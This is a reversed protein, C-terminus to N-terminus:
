GRMQLYVCNYNFNFEPKELKKTNIVTIRVNTTLTDLHRNLFLHLDGPGIKGQDHGHFHYRDHGLGLGPRLDPTHGHPQDQRLDQHVASTVRQVTLM